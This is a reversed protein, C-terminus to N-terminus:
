LNKYTEMTDMVIEKMIRLESETIASVGLPTKEAKSEMFQNSHDPLRPVKTNNMLMKKEM